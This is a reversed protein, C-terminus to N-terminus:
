KEVILIPQYAMQKRDYCSDKQKFNPSDANVESYIQKWNAFLQSYLYPGYRRETNFCIMDNGAPLGVLARGGPKLQCWARGMTIIDGWPNLQDGYRLFKLLANPLGNLVILINVIYFAINLYLLM